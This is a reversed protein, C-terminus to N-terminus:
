RYRLRLFPSAIGVAAWFLVFVLYLDLHPVPVFLELFGWVTTVSLTVGIGWLMSDVFVKRLFEDKEEALYMGVVLMIGVVPLAPLLALLYASVGEPHGHHFARVAVVLFILYFAMATMMRFTYRRTAPNSTSCIM